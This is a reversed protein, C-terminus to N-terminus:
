LEAWPLDDADTAEELQMEYRGADAKDSMFIQSSVAPALSAFTGKHEVTVRAEGRRHNRSDEGILWDAGLVMAITEKFLFLGTFWRREPGTFQPLLATIKAAAIEELGVIASVQFAKRGGYMGCVVIRSEPSTESRRLGFLEALDMVSTRVGLLALADDMGNDPKVIGRVIDAPIALHMPGCIVVLFSSVQTGSVAPLKETRSHRSM